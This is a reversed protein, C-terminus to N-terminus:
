FKFFLRLLLYFGAIAALAIIFVTMIQFPKKGTLPKKKIGAGEEQETVPGEGGLPDQRPIKIDLFESVKFDKYQVEIGQLSSGCKECVKGTKTEKGCHPCQM